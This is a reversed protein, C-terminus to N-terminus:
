RFSNDVVFLLDVVAGRPDIPGFCGAELCQGVPPADATSSDPLAADGPQPGADFPPFRTGGDTPSGGDPRAQPESSCAILVASPLLWILAARNM